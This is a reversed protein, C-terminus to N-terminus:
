RGSGLDRDLVVVGAEEVYRDWDALLEELKAPNEQSVDRTEGPDDDLNYLQWRGPGYDPWVWVIKWGGKHLANNGFLEWGVPETRPHVQETEGGLYPLLSLGRMPLVERGKYSAGPHEIGALELLTPAFDMISIWEDSQGDRIPSGGYTITAPVRLGGETAFEKFLRLPAASVQGWGEGPWIYSGMRGMNELRNDYLAPVWYIRDGEWLDNGAPGNDSMFVIFTNEYEGIQRLHEVLRGVHHDLNEIMAAYVEMRRTEVEKRQPSLADWGPVTDMRGLTTAQPPFLRMAQIRELRGARVQDWGEDYRGRTRELWEDPAQLPWHPATYALYAFFPNGDDRDADIYEIIRDTYFESSFFGEPLREVPEDNQVYTAPTLAPAVGRQDEFHSAGGDLLSFSREFGRGQPRNANGNGLHWKGAMYTHYGSDRLLESVTVVRSSLQGEYGPQGAVERAERLQPGFSGLGALHSYTGSLLMSRSPACAPSAHFNTFQLGERALADLNPTRIEGGYVGIDSFGLDDAVILLINPREATQRAQPQSSLALFVCLALGILAYSNVPVHRKM